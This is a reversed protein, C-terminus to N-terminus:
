DQPKTLRHKKHPASDVGTSYSGRLHMCIGTHTHKLYIYFLLIRLAKDFLTPTIEGEKKEEEETEKQISMEMGGM